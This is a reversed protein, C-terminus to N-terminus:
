RELITEFSPIVSAPMRDLLLVDLDFTVSRTAILYDIEADYVRGEAELDEIPMVVWVHVNPGDIEVGVKSVEPVSWIQALLRLIPAAGHLQSPKPWVANRQRPARRTQRVDADRTAQQEAVVM